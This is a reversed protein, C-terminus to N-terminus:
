YGAGRGGQETGRGRLWPASGGKGTSGGVGSGSERKSKCVVPGSFMGVAITKCSDGNDFMAVIEDDHDVVRVAYVDSESSGKKNGFILYKNGKIPSGSGHLLVSTRTDAILVSAVDGEIKWDDSDSELVVHLLINTNTLTLDASQSM